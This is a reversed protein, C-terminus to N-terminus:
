VMGRFLVYIALLLHDRAVYSLLAESCKNPIKMYRGDLLINGGKEDNESYIEKFV